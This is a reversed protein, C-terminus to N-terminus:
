ECLLRDKVDELMKKVDDINTVNIYRIALDRPKKLLSTFQGAVFAKSENLGMNPSVVRCRRFYETLPRNEVKFKMEFIDSKTFNLFFLSQACWSSNVIDEFLQMAEDLQHQVELLGHSFM